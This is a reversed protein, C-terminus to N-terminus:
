IELSLLNSKHTTEGKLDGTFIGKLAEIIDVRAGSETIVLSGDRFFIEVRMMPAPGSSLVLFADDLGKM